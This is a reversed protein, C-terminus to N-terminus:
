EGTVSLTTRTGGIPQVQADSGEPPVYLAVHNGYERVYQETFEQTGAAATFRSEPYNVTADNRVTMTRTSRLTGMVIAGGDDTRLGAFEADDVEYTERITAAEDKEVGENLAAREAQIGEHLDTLYPDTALRDDPDAKDGDTLTAAYLSLAEAPTMILGDADTAVPESGVRQDAVSPMEVDVAQEAWGWTTYPSKADAQQLAMFFPAGDEASNEVMAIAVRPFETSVTTMPVIIKPAPVTLEEAWAEAKAILAYTAGRFEAASGSVRPALKEADRAEDAEAVAANIEEVFRDFQEATQAPTPEALSPGEPPAPPAEPESGCAALVGSALLSGAGLFLGRRAIPRSTM